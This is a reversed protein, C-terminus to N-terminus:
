AVQLYRQDFIVHEEPIISRLDITSLLRLAEAVGFADKWEEIRRTVAEGTQAIPDNQPIVTIIEHESTSDSQRYEPIIQLIRDM